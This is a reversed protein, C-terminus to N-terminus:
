DERKNNNKNQANLRMSLVMLDILECKYLTCLRKAKIQAKELKQQETIYTTLKM